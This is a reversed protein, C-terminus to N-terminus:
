PGASKDREDSTVAPARTPLGRAAAAATRSAILRHTGIWHRRYAIGRKLEAAGAVAISGAGPIPAGAAATAVLGIVEGFALKLGGRLVRGGRSTRENARDLDRGLQRLVRRDDIRGSESAAAEIYRLQTRLSRVGPHRRIQDIDDWSLDAVNPYVVELANRGDIVDGTRIMRLVRGHLEDTLVVSGTRAGVALDHLAHHTVAVRATRDTLIEHPKTGRLPMELTPGVTVSTGFAQIQSQSTVTVEVRVQTDALDMNTTDVPILWPYADPLRRLIPDM